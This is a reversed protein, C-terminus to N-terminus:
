SEAVGKNLKNFDTVLCGLMICLILVILDGVDFHGPVIHTSQAIEAVVSVVPICWYWLYRALSTSDEWISEVFFQYCLVWLAFPLSYIVSTPLYRDFGDSWTRITQITGM